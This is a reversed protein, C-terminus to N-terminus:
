KRTGQELQLKIGPSAMDFRDDAEEIDLDTSSTDSVYGAEKDNDPSRAKAPLISSLDAGHRRGSGKRGSLFIEVTM